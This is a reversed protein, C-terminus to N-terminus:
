GEARPRPLPPRGRLSATLGLAWATALLYGAIVDSPFHWGVSIVAVGVGLALTLGLLAAFPRARRPAALVGAPGAVDGRDRSREAARPGVPYDFIPPFRQHALLANLLEGSISTAAILAVVAM